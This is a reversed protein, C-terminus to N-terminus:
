SRLIDLVELRRLVGESTGSFYVSRTRGGSGERDVALLPREKLFSAEFVQVSYRRVRLDSVLSPDVGVVSVNFILDTDTDWLSTGVFGLRALSSHDEEVDLEWWATYLAIGHGWQVDYSPGDPPLARTRVKTVSRSV